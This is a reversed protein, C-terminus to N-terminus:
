LSSAGFSFPRGLRGMERDLPLSCDDDGWFSIGWGLRRRM